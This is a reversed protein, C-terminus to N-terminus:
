KLALGLGEGGGPLSGQGGGEEQGNSACTPRLPIPLEADHMTGKLFVAHIKETYITFSTIITDM